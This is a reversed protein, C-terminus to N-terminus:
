WMMFRDRIITWLSKNLEKYLDGVYTECLNKYEDRSERVYTLTEESEKLEYQLQNVKEQLKRTQFHVLQEVANDQSYRLVVKYTTNGKVDIGKELTLPLDPYHKWHADAVSLKDCFIYDTIVYHRKTEFPTLGEPSSDRSVEAAKRSWLMEEHYDPCSCMQKELSFHVANKM